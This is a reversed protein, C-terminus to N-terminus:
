RGGGGPEAKKYGEIDEVLKGRIDRMAQVQRGFKRLSDAAGDVDLDLV